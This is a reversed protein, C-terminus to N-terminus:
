ECDAQRKQPCYDLWHGHEIKLRGQRYNALHYYTFEGSQGKIVTYNNNSLTALKICAYFLSTPHKKCYWTNDPLEWELTLAWQIASLAYNKNQYHQKDVVTRKQTSLSTRRFETLLVSTLLFLMMVMAIASFGDSKKLIFKSM